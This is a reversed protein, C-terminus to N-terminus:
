WNEIAREVIRRALDTIGDKIATSEAKAKSGSTFYTTEGTFRNEQWIIKNEKTNWLSINVVINLRYEEIDEDDKYRLVDRRYEVLEGKLIVDADNEKVVKLNGDFLFRSAVATTIDTELNPYYTRLKSYVSDQTGFDIKNEFPKIYITKINPDIMSRTTYGCGSVFSLILIFAIVRMKERHYVTKGTGKCGM